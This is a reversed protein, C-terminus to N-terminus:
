SGAGQEKRDAVAEYIAAIVRFHEPSQITDLEEGTAPGVGYQMKLELIRRVSEDIRAMPLRGDKAATMLGQHLQEIMEPQCSGATTMRVCTLLDAGALIARVGSEEPPAIQM